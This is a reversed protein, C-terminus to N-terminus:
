GQRRIERLLSVLLFYMVGCAGVALSVTGLISFIASVPRGRVVLSAALFLGGAGVVLYSLGHYRSLAPRFAVWIMLLGGFALLLPMSRWFLRPSILDASMALAVFAFAVGILILPPVAPLRRKM